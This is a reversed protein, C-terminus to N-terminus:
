ERGCDNVGDWSLGFLGEGVALILHKWVHNGWLLFGDLSLTVILGASLLMITAIAWPPIMKNSVANTNTAEIDDSIIAYSIM